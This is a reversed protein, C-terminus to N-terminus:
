HQHSDKHGEIELYDGQPGVGEIHVLQAGFHGAKVVCFGSGILIVTTIVMFWRKNRFMFLNFSHFLLGIFSLNITWDAWYDHNDLVLKARETLGHTHPHFIRSALYATIFGILIMSFSVLMLEKKKFYINILHVIAGVILLVIAFHVILPHLSPFDEFGARVNKVEDSYALNVPILIFLIGIVYIRININSFGNM